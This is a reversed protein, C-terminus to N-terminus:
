EVTMALSCMDLWFARLIGSLLILENMGTFVNRYDWLYRYYTVDSGLKARLHKGVKSSQNLCFM